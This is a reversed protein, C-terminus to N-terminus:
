GGLIRSYVRQWLWSAIRLPHRCLKTTLLSKEPPVNYYLHLWWDSPLFLLKFKERLTHRKNLAYTMSNMIEGIGNLQMDVVGGVKAQLAQSLPSILHLVRLSNIVHYYDKHLSHWDLEDIFHECYVVVDMVNILKLVAGPHMGEMHRSVQHLMQIHGMTMINTERWVIMQASEVVQEFRLHGATERTYGDHHIEISITFGDVQKTANPLQHMNRMYKNPQEQEINFGNERMLDAAFEAKKHPVLIDMDRMPRFEESPYIMPSLALGKLALWPIDNASFLETLEQIVRYRANAILRHRVSLAKLQLLVSSDISLNHETIHKLLMTSVSYVEARAILKQWDVVEDFLKQLDKARSETLRLCAIRHLIQRNIDM